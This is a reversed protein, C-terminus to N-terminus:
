EHEKEAQREFYRVGDNPKFFTRITGDRNYAGFAGSRTDFRSIVGDDRVLELVSGGKKADRLAQALRLYEDKTISGFERGHKEFHEDLAARSRFGTSNAVTERQPAGTRESAEGQQVAGRAESPASPGEVDLWRPGLLWGLTVLLLVFVVRIWRRSM